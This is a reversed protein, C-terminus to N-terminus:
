VARDAISGGARSGWASPGAILCDEYPPLRSGKVIQERRFSTQRMSNYTM